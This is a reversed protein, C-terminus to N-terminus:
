HTIGLYSKTEAVTAIDSDLLATDHVTKMYECAQALSERVDRGYEAERVKDIIQQPTMTIAM